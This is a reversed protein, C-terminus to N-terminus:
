IACTGEEFPPRRALEDATLPRGEGAQTPSVLALREVQVTLRNRGSSHASQLAQRIGSGTMM